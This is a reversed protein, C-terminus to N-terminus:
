RRRFGLDKGGGFYMVGGVVGGMRERVMGSVKIINRYINRIM